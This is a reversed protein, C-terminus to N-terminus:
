LFSFFTLPVYIINNENKVDDINSIIVGYKAKYKNIAKKIQTKEKKGIAVEVPIKENIGKQILFDVGGKEPDYFIGFEYTTEKIKFFTSAVFNEALVGLMNRDFIDLIGLKYRIAANISPSLFYYKWPKRTLKGSSGYPKVSFILHTKELIELIERILRSSAGFRESLKADSVGGPKQTALFYIIRTILNRTESSFSKLSMIDKEVIRDIMGNIKEYVAKEEITLGFPFGGKVLFYEYEKDLDINKRISKIKTRDWLRAAEKLINESYNFILNRLVSGANKEPFFNHKLILYESFNLPFLPEKICRRAVDAGMEMSLASSGTVLVFVNKSRDYIIKVGLDWEKDFHAEDILIFLREKLLSLDTKLIDETFVRVAESIGIGFYKKLEDAFLLLVKEKAIKKKKTLYNYLQFLLTTKGVGRLGPMIILREQSGKLFDDIRKKLRFYLARYNFPVGNEETMKKAMEPMRMLEGQLYRAIQERDM